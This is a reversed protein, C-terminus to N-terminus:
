LSRKAGRGVQLRNEIRALMRLLTNALYVAEAAEAPEFKVIRHSGPNKFTGIAGVFLERLADREGPTDAPDTLNGTTSHFAKRMLPVGIDDAPYLGIQRVRVEVLKFAQFVATDYQGGVFIPWVTNVLLANLSDRRLLNGRKYAEFDATATLGQGRRSVVVWDGQTAPKPVILGERDLWAWAEALAMQIRAKDVHGPYLSGSMLTFNYRNREQDSTDPACLFRLIFLALEEPPMDVVIDPPPLHKEYPDPMAIPQKQEGGQFPM